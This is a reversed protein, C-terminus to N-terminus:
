KIWVEDDHPVIEQLTGRKQESSGCLVKKPVHGTWQTFIIWLWEVQAKEALYERFIKVAQNTSRKTNV